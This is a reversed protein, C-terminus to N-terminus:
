PKAVGPLHKIPSQAAVTRVRGFDHRTLRANVMEHEKRFVSVSAGPEMLGVSRKDKACKCRWVSSQSLIRWFSHLGLYSGGAHPQLQHDTAPFPDADAEDGAWKSPVYKNRFIPLAV